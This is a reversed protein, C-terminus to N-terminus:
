PTYLNPGLLLWRVKSPVVPTMPQLAGAQVGWSHLTRSGGTSHSPCGQCEGDSGQAGMHM